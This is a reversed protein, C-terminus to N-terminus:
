ERSAESSMTLGPILDVRFLTRLAHELEVVQLRAVMGVRDIVHGDHVQKKAKFAMDAILDISLVKDKYESILSYVSDEWRKLAAVDSLLLEILAFGTADGYMVRIKAKDDNSKNKLASQMHVQVSYPMQDRGIRTAWILPHTFYLVIDFM